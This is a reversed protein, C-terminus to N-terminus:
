FESRGADAEWTSSYFGHAVVAQRVVFIKLISLNTVPNVFM